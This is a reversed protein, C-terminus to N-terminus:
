GAGDGVTWANDDLGVTWLLPLTTPTTSGTLPRMAFDVAADFLKLGDANVAAATNNEYFFFVRRAPMVFGDVGKDGKEYAYLLAMTPDAALTAVIHAGVPTGQSFTQPSTTVTLLGALFGAALPHN